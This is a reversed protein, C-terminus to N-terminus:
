SWSKCTAMFFLDSKYFPFKCFHTNNGKCLMKQWCFLLVIGVNKSEVIVYFNVLNGNGAM